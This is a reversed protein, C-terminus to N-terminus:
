CITSEFDEHLTDYKHSLKELQPIDHVQLNVEKVHLVCRNKAYECPQEIIAM